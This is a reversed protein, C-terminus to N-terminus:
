GFDGWYNEYDDNEMHDYPGEFEEYTRDDSTKRGIDWEFEEYGTYKKKNPRM